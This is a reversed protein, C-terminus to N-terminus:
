RRERLFAETEDETMSRTAEHVQEPTMKVVGQLTGFRPAWRDAPQALDAIVRGHRRITVREGREVAELLQPLKNKAETVSVDM